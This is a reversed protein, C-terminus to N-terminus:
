SPVERWRRELTELGAEMPVARWRADVGPSAAGLSQGDVAVLGRRKLKALADAVEFDVDRGALSSFV